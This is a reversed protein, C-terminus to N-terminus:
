QDQKAMYLKYVTSIDVLNDDYADELTYVKNDGIIYLGTLEPRYRSPSEFTYGGVVEQEIIDDSAICTPQLRYFRYGNVTGFYEYVSDDIQIPLDYGYIDKCYSVFAARDDDLYNINSPISTLDAKSSSDALALASYNLDTFLSDFNVMLFGLVAFAVAITIIKVGYRPMKM